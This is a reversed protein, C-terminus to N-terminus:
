GAALLRDIEAVFAHMPQAGVLRGVPQGDRFFFLAPIGQVGLRRAIDPHHDVDVKVIKLRHAYDRALEELIPAIMRCPGCWDAWADVLVLGPAQGVVRDFDATGAHTLWPLDAQCRACRPWGSADAPVRNKARCAPCTV